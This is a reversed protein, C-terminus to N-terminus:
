KVTISVTYNPEAYEVHPNHRYLRLAEEMSITPPLRLHQIGLAPFSRILSLGFESYIRSRAKETVGEKFKVLIESAIFSTNEHPITLRLGNGRTPISTVPDSVLFFISIISITIKKM